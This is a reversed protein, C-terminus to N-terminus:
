CRREFRNETLGTASDTLGCDEVECELGELFEALTLFRVPPDYRELGQGSRLEDLDKLMMIAVVAM